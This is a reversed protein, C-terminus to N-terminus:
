EGGASQNEGWAKQLAQIIEQKFEDVTLGRYYNSNIETFEKDKVGRIIELTKKRDNKLKTELWSSYCEENKCIKQDTGDGDYECSKIKEQECEKEFQERLDSM